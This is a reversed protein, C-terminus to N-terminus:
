HWVEQDKNNFHLDYIGLEIRVGAFSNIKRPIMKNPVELAIGNWVRWQNAMTVQSNVLKHLIPDM